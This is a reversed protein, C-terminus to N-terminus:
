DPPTALCSPTWDAFARMAPSLFRHHPYLLSIPVPAPRQDALVEVLTRNRLHDTVLIEAAQILGVGDLGLKIYLGTENVAVTGAVPAAISVGDDVFHLEGGRRTTSSFYHVAINHCIRWYRPCVTNPWTPLRRAPSGACSGWAERGLTSDSLNGTRIVCDAEQILDVQRDNVGVMLYIDPYRQQFQALKPLIV